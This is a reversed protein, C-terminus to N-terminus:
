ANKQISIHGPRTYIWIWSKSNTFNVKKIKIAALPFKLLNSQTTHFRLRTNSRCVLLSNEYFIIGGNVLSFIDSIKWYNDRWKWLMRLDEPFAQILSCEVNYNISCEKDIGMMKKFYMPCNYPPILGFM